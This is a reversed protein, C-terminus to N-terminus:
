NDNGQDQAGPDFPCQWDAEVQRGSYQRAESSTGHRALMPNITGALQEDRRLITSRMKEYRGQERLARFQAHPNLVIAPFAFRRAIRSAAPHLGVAFFAEGGFSLAFHADDPDRSTDADTALGLARDIDSLANIRQWLAQEFAIEDLRPISRFLVVCSQFQTADKSRVAFDLLAAHIRRDDGSSRIDQAVVFQAGDKALASKAGVCPFPSQAVFDRFRDIIAADLRDDDVLLKSLDTEASLGEYSHAPQDALQSMPCASHRALDLTM